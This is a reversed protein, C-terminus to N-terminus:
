SPTSLWFSPGWDAEPMPGCCTSGSGLHRARAASLSATRDADIDPETSDSALHDLSAKVDPDALWSLKARTSRDIPISALSKELDERHKGLHRAMVAEIAACTPPTLAGRIMLHDALLHTKDRSWSRFANMLQDQDILGNQLALLGFLLNCDAAVSAM